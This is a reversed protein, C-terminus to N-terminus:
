QGTYYVEYILKTIESGTYNLREAKYKDLIDSVAIQYKASIDKLSLERSICDKIFEKSM